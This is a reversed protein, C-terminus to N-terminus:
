NSQRHHSGTQKFAHMNYGWSKYIWVRIRQGSRLEIISLAQAHALSFPFCKLCGMLWASYISISSSVSLSFFVVFPVSSCVETAKVKSSKHTSEWNKCAHKHQVHWTKPNKYMCSQTQNQKNDILLIRRATDKIVHFNSFLWKKLSSRASRIIRVWTSGWSQNQRGWSAHLINHLTHM